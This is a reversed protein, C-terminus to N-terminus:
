KERFARMAQDHLPRALYSMVTRSSTQVFSEVPMGPVLKTGNLRALEDDPVAIRITYYSAGTKQDQATDASVWQVRGNLEPTTRQNFTTFRLTAPQDPHLQDIDQPSVRAEVVLPDSEPVVLMLPDAPTVVGGVTHVNLQHVVGSQPARIDVRKLQDEAAIKREALESTKARIDALEKGVETRLDQDIQLIQLETEAIKGRSQAASAILAGREGELRAADRELATLRTLQVLNKQWLETVGKLELHILAIERGKAAIQDTLGHIEEGLQAIREKLQDRQGNRARRRTEFLRQEGALLQAVDPDDRRAILSDPFLTREAGDREARERAQRAALEDLQKLLVQLNARTQTDDLRVVIEGANVHDGERVRLEGVIGGTPHQVKKVNSDVVLQGEAIVAGSIETTTAWGGGGVALVAIVAAGAMLHRRISTNVQLQPEREGGAANRDGRPRHDNAPIAALIRSVLGRSDPEAAGEFNMTSM